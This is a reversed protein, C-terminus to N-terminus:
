SDYMVIHPYGHRAHTSWGAGGPGGEPGGEGM